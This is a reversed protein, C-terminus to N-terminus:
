FIILQKKLGNIQIYARKLTLKGTSYDTQSNVAIKRLSSGRRTVSNRLNKETVSLQNLDFDEKSFLCIQTLVRIGEDKTLCFLTTKWRKQKSVYNLRLKGSLYSLNANQEMQAKLANIDTDTVKDAEIPFRVSIQSSLKESKKEQNVFKFVITPFYSNTSDWKIYSQGVISECVDTTIDKTVADKNKEWLHDFRQLIANQNDKLTQTLADKDKDLRKNLDSKFDSIRSRVGNARSQVYARTSRHELGVVGAVEQVQGSIAGLAAAISSEVSGFASMYMPHNIVEYLAILDDLSTHTALIPDKVSEEFATFDHHFDTLKDSIDEVKSKIDLVNTKLDDLKTEANLLSAAINESLEKLEVLRELLLQSQAKLNELMTENRDSFQNFSEVFTNFSNKFEFLSEDLDKIQNKLADLLGTLIDELLTYNNIEENILTEIHDFRGDITTFNTELFIKYDAIVELLAYTKNHYWILNNQLTELKEKLFDELTAADAQLIEQM